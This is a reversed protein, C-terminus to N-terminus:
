YDTNLTGPSNCVVPTDNVNICAFPEEATSVGVMNEICRYYLEGNYTYPFSCNPVIVVFTLM